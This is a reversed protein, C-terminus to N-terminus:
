NEVIPQAEPLKGLRDKTAIEGAIASSILINHRFNSIIVRCHDGLQLHNFLWWLFVHTDLLYNIGM